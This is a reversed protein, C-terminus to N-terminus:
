SVSLNNGTSSKPPWPPYLIPTLRYICAPCSSTVGASHRGKKLVGTEDIVLVAEPDKTHQIIYRRLEDGV